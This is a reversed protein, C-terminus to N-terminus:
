KIGIIEQYAYIYNGAMISSSYKSKFIMKSALERETIEDQTLDFSDQLLDTFRKLNNDSSLGDLNNDQFFDVLGPTSIVLIENIGALM